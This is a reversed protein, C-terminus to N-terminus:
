LAARDAQVGACGPRAPLQCCGGSRQATASLAWQEGSGGYLMLWEAAELRVSSPAVCCNSSLKGFAGPPRLTDSFPASKVCGSAKETILGPMACLLASCRREGQGRWGLRVSRRSSNLCALAYGGAPKAFVTRAGQFVTGWARTKSRRQSEEPRQEFTVRETLGGLGM